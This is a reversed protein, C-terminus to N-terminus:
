SPYGLIAPADGFRNHFEASLKDDFVSRWQAASPDRMHKSRKGAFVSNDVACQLANDLAPGKFGLFTFVGTFAILDVDAMLTELGVFKAASYAPDSRRAIMQRIVNAASHNMEFLFRAHMDPLSNIKQQYTMGDFQENPRHLWKETSKMHYHAASIVVDRPDRVIVLTPYKRPDIEINEFASHWNFCVDWQSPQDPSRSSHWVKMGYKASLDRLIGRFLTTGTKHFTGILLPEIEM